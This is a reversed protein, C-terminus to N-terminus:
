KLTKVLKFIEKRYFVNRFKQLQGLVTWIRSNNIYVFFLLPAAYVGLSWWLKFNWGRPFCLWYFSVIETKTSSNLVRKNSTNQFWITNDKQPGICWATKAPRDFGHWHGNGQGNKNFCLGKAAGSVFLYFFFFFNEFVQITSTSYTM